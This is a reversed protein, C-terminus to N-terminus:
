CGRSICKKCYSGHKAKINISNLKIKINELEQSDYYHKFDSLKRVFSINNIKEPYLFWTEIQCTFIEYTRWIHENNNISSM